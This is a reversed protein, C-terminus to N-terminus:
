SVGQEIFAQVDLVQHLHIQDVIYDYKTNTEPYEEVIAECWERDFMKEWSTRLEEESEAERDEFSLFWRNLAFVWYGAELELVAEDPLEVTLVVGPEGVELFGGRAVNPPTDSLWVPDNGNLLRKTRKEYQDALWDYASRHNAEEEDKLMGYNPDGFLFGNKKGAEWAGAHQYTYYIAM